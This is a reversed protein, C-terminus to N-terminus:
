KFTVILPHLVYMYLPRHVYIKTSIGIVQKYILDMGMVQKILSDMGMVEGVFNMGMVLLPFPHSNSGAIVM